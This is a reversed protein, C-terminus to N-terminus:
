NNKNNYNLTKKYLRHIIREQKITTPKGAKVWEMIGNYFKTEWDNNSFSKPDIKSLKDLIIRRPDKGFVEGIFAKKIDEICRELNNKIETGVFRLVKIRLQQLRRDIRRDRTLQEPSKGHFQFGDCYIAIPEFPDHIFFDPKTFYNQNKSKKPYDNYIEEHQTFPINNLLLEYAIKKEIPSDCKKEVEKMITTTYLHKQGSKLELCFNKEFEGLFDKYATELNIIERPFSATYGMEKFFKELSQAIEQVLKYQILNIDAGFFNGKSLTKIVLEKKYALFILEVEKIKNNKDRLINSRYKVQNDNEFYVLLENCIEIFRKDDIDINNRQIYLAWENTLYDGFTWSFCYQPENYEFIIFSNDRYNTKIDDILQMKLNKHIESYIEERTKSVCCNKFKKGSGCPCIDDRQIEMNRAIIKLFKSIDENNM